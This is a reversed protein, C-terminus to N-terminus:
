TNSLGEKIVTKLRHRVENPIVFNQDYPAFNDGWRTDVFTQGEFLRFEKYRPIIHVHLHPTVNGLSAYNFLDPHFLQGLVNKVCRAHQFFSEEEEATMSLFDLSDQRRAWLYVWGIYNQNEHLYLSWHPFDIIPSDKFAM